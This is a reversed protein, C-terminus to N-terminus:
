LVRAQVSTLHFARVRTEVRYVVNESNFYLSGWVVDSVWSLNYPRDYSKCTSLTQTHAFMCAHPSHNMYPKNLQTFQTIQTFIEYCIYTIFYKCMNILVHHWECSRNQTSIINNSTEHGCALLCMQLIRYVKGVKITETKTTLIVTIYPLTYGGSTLAM